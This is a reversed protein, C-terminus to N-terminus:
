RMWRMRLLRRWKRWETSSSHVRSTRKSQPRDNMKSEIMGAHSLIQADRIGVALAREIQRRAEAYEGNV